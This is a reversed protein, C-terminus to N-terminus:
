HIGSYFPLRGTHIPTPKIGKGVGKCGVLTVGWWYKRIYYYIKKNGTFTRNGKRGM